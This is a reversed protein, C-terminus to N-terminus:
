SVNMLFRVDGIYGEETRILEEIVRRRNLSREITALDVQSHRDHSDESQRGCGSARSSRDTRSHALSSRLTQRRSRDMFSTSALSMSAERAASVFAFSSVSSSHRRYNSNESNRAEAGHQCAPQQKEPVAQRAWQRELRRRHLIQVWKKFPRKPKAPSPSQHGTPLTLLDRYADSAAAMDQCTKERNLMLLMELGLDPGPQLQITTGNDAKMPEVDGLECSAGASAAPSCISDTKGLLLDDATRSAQISSPSSILQRDYHDYKRRLQAM